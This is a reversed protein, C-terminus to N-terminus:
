NKKKKGTRFSGFSDGPAWTTGLAGNLFTIVDAAKENLVLKGSATKKKYNINLDEIALLYITQDLARLSVEKSKPWITVNTAVIGNVALSGKHTIRHKTFNKVRLTSSPIYSSFEAGVLISTVRPTAQAPAATMTMASGVLAASSLAAATMRTKSRTKLM